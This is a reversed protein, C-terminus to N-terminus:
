PKGERKDGCECCVIDEDENGAGCNTCIWAGICEPHYYKREDIVFIARDKDVPEECTGCIAQKEYGEDEYM